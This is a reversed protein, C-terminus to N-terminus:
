SVFSFILLFSNRSQISRAVSRTTLNIFFRDDDVDCVIIHLQANIRCHTGHIFLDINFFLTLIDHDAEVRFEQDIRKTNNIIFGHRDIKYIRLCWAKDTVILLVISVQDKRYVDVLILGSLVQPLTVTKSRNHM